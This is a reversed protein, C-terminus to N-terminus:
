TPETMELYTITALYKFLFHNLKKSSIDAITTVFKNASFLYMM